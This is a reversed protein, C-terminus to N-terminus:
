VHRHEITAKASWSQIKVRAKSAIVMKRYIKLPTTYSISDTNDQVANAPFDNTHNEATFNCMVNYKALLGATFVERYQNGRTKEILRRKM